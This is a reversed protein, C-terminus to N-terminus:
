FPLSVIGTDRYQASVRLVGSAAPLRLAPRAIYAMGIARVIDNTEQIIATTVPLKAKAIVADVLERIAATGSSIVTGGSHAIDNHEKILAQGISAVTAHSLVSDIRERIAATGTAIPSALARFIDHSELIAATGQNAISTASGQARDQQELMSQVSFPASPPTFNATYVAKGMTIRAEDIFGNWTSNPSGNASGIAQGTMGKIISGSYSGTPTQAVGDLYMTFTSGYRVWAGHHWSGTSLVASPTSIAVSWNTSGDASGCLMFMDGNNFFCLCGSFGSGQSGFVVTSGSLSNAYVWAEFTWDQTLPAFIDNSTGILVGGGLGLSSPGFKQQTTSLAAGGVASWSSGFVDTFTTSGNTGDFHLLATSPDTYLTAAM